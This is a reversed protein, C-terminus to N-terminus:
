CQWRQPRGARLDMAGIEEKGASPAVRRSLSADQDNPYPQRKVLRPGHTETKIGTRSLWLAYPPIPPTPVYAYHGCAIGMATANLPMLLRPVPKM